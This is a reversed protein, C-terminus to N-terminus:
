VPVRIDPHHVAQQQDLGGGGIIRRGAAWGQAAESGAPGCVNPHGFLRQRRGPSRLSADAPLGCVEQLQWGKPHNGGCRYRLPSVGRACHSEQGSPMARPAHTPHWLKCHADFSGAWLEGSSTQAVELELADAAASTSLTLEYTHGHVTVRAVEGMIVNKGAERLQTAGVSWRGGRRVDAVVAGFHVLTCPPWTAM